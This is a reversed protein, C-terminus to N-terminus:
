NVRTVKSGGHTSVNVNTAKRYKLTSAGTLSGKITNNVTVEAMSAGSLDIDLNDSEFNRAKFSSAGSGTFSCKSASGKSGTFISAGSCDVTCDFDIEGYKLSLDSAGSLNANISKGFFTLDKLRSAGSITINLEGFCVVLGNLSSAGSLSIDSNMSMFNDYSRIRAAGSAEIKELTAVQVRARFIKNGLNGRGSIKLYLYGNPLLRASIRNKEGVCYELSVHNNVDDQTVVVEWPGEVIIGKIKDTIPIEEQTLRNDKTCAIFVLTVTAAFAFRAFKQRIRRDKM